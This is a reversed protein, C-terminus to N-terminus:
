RLSMVPWPNVGSLQLAPRVLPVRRVVSFAENLRAARSMFQSVRKDDVAVKLELSRSKRKMKYLRQGLIVMGMVAAAMSFTWIPSIKFACYKLVEFPVKWWVIRKKEEESVPKLGPNMEEVAAIDSCRIREDGGELETVSGIVGGMKSSIESADGTKMHDDFEVENDKRIDVFKISVSSDGGSDSWFKGLDEDPVHTEGCGEFGVQSKENEVSGLENTVDFETIKSKAEIEGIGEIGVQSKANDVYGLDNKSDFDSYKREQSRDSGSDSWFEGSNKRQYPTESGPDIWSPNDSDVSGEEECADVVSKSYRGQNDLSFYDSRIMGESEPESGQFDRFNDVSKPSNVLAPDSSQLLEWDQFESSAEGEM